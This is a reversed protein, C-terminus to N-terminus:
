GTITPFLADAGGAVLDAGLRRRWRKAAGFEHRWAWLRRSLHHLRYERTVGMAGHVQHAARTAEVAAADVIVRAAAVEFAADGAEYARTAVDAAMSARVSCQAVTVLHLQVAQFAAIPRGFQRREHAYDVTLQSMAELAGASLATRTLSGRRQLEGADIGPPAAAQQLDELAVDFVVADRPEGAMNVRPTIDLQDPSASVIVPGSPGEVIALVRAARQAWPVLAEGRLRGAELRLAGPDPVVTLPGAPIEVGAAAALWGGLAGTEAIPV